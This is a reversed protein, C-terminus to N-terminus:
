EGAEVFYSKLINWSEERKERLKKDIFDYDMVVDNELNNDTGEREIIKLEQGLSIMRSKNGRNYYFVQRHFYLSFLLGHYSASFVVKAKAFLTIWQNVNIPRVNKVGRLPMNFNLYYVKLKHKKAYVIADSINRRDPTYMYILVYDENVYDDLVFKRWSDGNWLMTPDCTVPIEKNVLPIIWESALQERVSIRDFRNLLSQIIQEEEKEWKTGVSSSFALKEKDDHAFQLFYNFDHGTVEMGWVIDSGVIFGDFLDNLSAISTSDLTPSVTMNQNVFSWMNNKVKSLTPNLVIHRIYDKISHCEKLSYTNERKEITSCRYDLLTIEIGLEKIARYLGYTQLLSGYNLTNHITILGYSRM